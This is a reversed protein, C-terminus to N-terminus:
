KRELGLLAHRLRLQRMLLRVRSKIDCIGGRKKAKIAFVSSLKEM